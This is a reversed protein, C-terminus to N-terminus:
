ADGGRLYFLSSNAWAATALMVSLGVLGDITGVFVLRPAVRWSVVLVVVTITTALLWGALRGKVVLSCATAVSAALFAVGMLSLADGAPTSLPVAAAQEAMVLAPCAALVVLALALSHALVRATIVSSPQAGLFASLLVLADGREASAARISAWPLVIAFLLSALGRTQEYADLGIAVPVGHPWALVFAVLLVGMLACALAMASRRAVVTVELVFMSRM